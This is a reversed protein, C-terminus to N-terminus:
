RACGNAETKNGQEASGWSMQQLLPVAPVCQGQRFGLLWSAVAGARGWAAAAVGRGPSPLSLSVEKGGAM